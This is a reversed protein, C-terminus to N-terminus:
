WSTVCLGPVASTARLGLMFRGSLRTFPELIFRAPTLVFWIIVTLRFRTLRVTLLLSKKLPGVTCVKMLWTPVVLLIVRRTFIIDPLLMRLRTVRIM